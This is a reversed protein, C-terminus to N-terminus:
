YRSCAPTCTRLAIASRMSEVALSAEPSRMMLMESGKTRRGIAVESSIPPMKSTPSTTKGNSGTAGSGCTSKGVMRTVACSGPALGSVM